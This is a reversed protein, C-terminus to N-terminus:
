SYLDNINIENHALYTNTFRKDRSVDGGLWDPTKYNNAAEEDKFEIEAIILGELREKFIDLEIKLGDSLPILYRRKKIIYGECKKKLNDYAISDPLIAEIEENVRASSATKVPSKYTLIMNEEDKGEKSHLVQKRIRLTPYSTIYAQEMDYYSYDDLNSPLNKVLYKREIEM